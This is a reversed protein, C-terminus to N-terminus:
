LRLLVLSPEGSKVRLVALQPNSNPLVHAHQLVMQCVVVVMLVVMIAVVVVAMVVSLKMMEM